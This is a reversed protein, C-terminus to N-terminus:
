FRKDFAIEILYLAFMFSRQLQLSKSTKFRMEDSSFLILLKVVCCLKCIRPKIKSNGDEFKISSEPSCSILKRMEQNLNHSIEFIFCSM